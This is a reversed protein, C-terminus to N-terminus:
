FGYSAQLYLADQKIKIRNGSSSSSTLENEFAHTYAVSGSINKGLERTVGLSLHREPIAVSGLNNDVDEAGIPSKGYNIGARVKTKPNVEKQAGLSFVVQDDWGFNLSAPIPGVYGSPRTIPVSGMTESFDIWKADAELLLGPKPKFAVGLTAQQPVDLDMGFKGSTTNFEHESINTKSVWSAGLQLKDNAKYVVGLTAGSGFQQNQPLTFGPTSLALSQSGINLSGGVSLKDNVKYAVTPALKFFGKTTVFPQNGPAPLTDPFDVGFGAQAAMGLGLYLKDNVKVAAAGSPMFFLDSGSKNGNAERPPSLFGPSLDFRVKEM